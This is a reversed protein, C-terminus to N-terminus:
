SAGSPRAPPNERRQEAVRRQREVDHARMVLPEVSAADGVPQGARSMGSSARMAATASQTRRSSSRGGTDGPRSVRPPPSRALDHAAAARLEIGLTTSAITRATSLPAIADVSSRARARRERRRTQSADVARRERRRDRRGDAAQLRQAAGRVLAASAETVDGRVRARHREGQSPEPIPASARRQACAPCSASRASSRARISTSATARSCRSSCGSSPSRATPTASARRRGHAALRRARPLGDRPRRVYGPSSTRAACASRARRRWRCHLRPASTAGRRTIAPPLDRRRRRPLPRRAHRPREPRDVRNFLCVPAAETLGYGQRLEVGTADAWRDQLERPLARAAASASRAARAGRLDVGRREIARSCARPVRRARRRVGHRRRALLEARTAPISASWRRARARRRAAARRRHGDLGFLHAFPLLALVHDDARSARGGRRDLARQRAPQSAHPHRRAPTGRMASTYVIAAEEDRGRSTASARSRCASTRASTSTRRATRRRDRAGHAARRRAARRCHRRPRAARARRHHVGRRRERRRVPVRDRRPAALPNILVAGRGESAALATLFAPSTPLLIASRRAPSRACSRRAASSCRSAPPSSSSRM